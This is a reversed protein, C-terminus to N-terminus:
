TMWKVMMVAFLLNMSWGHPAISLAVASKIGGILEGMIHLTFGNVKMRFHVAQINGVRWAFKKM